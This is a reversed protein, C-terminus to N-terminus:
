DYLEYEKLELVVRYIEHVTVFIDRLMMEMRMMHQMMMPDMMMNNNMYSVPPMQYTMNGMRPMPMQQWKTSVPMNTLLKELQEMHRSLKEKKAEEM